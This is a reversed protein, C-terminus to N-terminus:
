YSLRPRRHLVHMVTCYGSKADSVVFDLGRKDSEFRMGRGEDDSGGM